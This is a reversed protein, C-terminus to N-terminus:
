VLVPIGAYRTELEDWIAQEGKALFLPVLPDAWSLGEEYYCLGGIVCCEGRDEHGEYQPMRSHIGIGRGVPDTSWRGDYRVYSRTGDPSIGHGPWLDGPIWDTGFMLQVAGAPGRLLWTIEMGHVGHGQMDMRPCNYGPTFQVSEELGDPRSTWRTRTEGREHCNSM